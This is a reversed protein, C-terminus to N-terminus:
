VMKHQYSSGQASALVWNSGRMRFLPHIGTDSQCICHRAESSTSNASKPKLNCAPLFAVPCSSTNRVIEFYPHIRLLSNDQLHWGSSSPSVQLHNAWLCCMTHQWNLYINHLSCLQGSNHWGTYATYMIQQPPAALGSPFLRGTHVISTLCTM